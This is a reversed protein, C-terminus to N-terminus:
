KENEKRINELEMICKMEVTVDKGYHHKLEVVKNAQEIIDDLYQWSEHPISGDKFRKTTEELIKAYMTDVYEKIAIHEKMKKEKRRKRKEIIEDFVKEIERFTHRFGMTDVHKTKGNWLCYESSENILWKVGRRHIMRKERFVDFVKYSFISYDYCKMRLWYNHHYLYALVSLIDEKEYPYRPSPFYRLSDQLKIYSDILSNSIDNETKMLESPNIDKNFIIRILDAAKRCSEYDKSYELYKMSNKQIEVEQYYKFAELILTVIEIRYLAEGWRVGWNSRDAM